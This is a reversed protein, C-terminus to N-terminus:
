NSTTVTHNCKGACNLGCLPHGVICTCQCGVIQGSSKLFRCCSCGVGACSHSEGGGPDLIIPDPATRVSLAMLYNGGHSNLCRFVLYRNATDSDDYWAEYISNINQGAFLYNLYNIIVSSDSDTVFTITSDAGNNFTVNISRPTNRYTLSTQAKCATLSVVFSLLFILKM